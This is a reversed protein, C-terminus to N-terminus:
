YILCEDRRGEWGSLHNRVKMVYALAMKKIKKSIKPQVIFESSQVGCM